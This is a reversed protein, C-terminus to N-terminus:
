NNFVQHPAKIQKKSLENKIDAMQATSRIKTLLALLKAEYMKQDFTRCFVNQHSIFKGINEEGVQNLENSGMTIMVNLCLSPFTPAVYDNNLILLKQFVPLPIRQKAIVHRIYTEFKFVDRPESDLIINLIVDRSPAIEVDHHRLLFSIAEVRNGFQSHVMHDVVQRYCSLLRPHSECDKILQKLANGDKRVGFIHSFATIYEKFLRHFRALVKHADALKEPGLKSITAYLAQKEPLVHARACKKLECRYELFGPCAGGFVNRIVEDTEPDIGFIEGNTEVIPEPSPSKPPIIIFKMRTDDLETIIEEEMPQKKPKPKPEEIDEM